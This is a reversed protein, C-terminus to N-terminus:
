KVWPQSEDFAKQLSRVVRQQEALDAEAAELMKGRARLEAKALSLDMEAKKLAYYEELTM